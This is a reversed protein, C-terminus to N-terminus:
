NLLCDAAKGPSSADCATGRCKRRYEAITDSERDTDREMRPFRRATPEIPRSSPPCSSNLVCGAPSFTSIERANWFGTSRNAPLNARPKTGQSRLEDQSCCWYRNKGAKRQRTITTTKQRRKSNKARARCMSNETSMTAIATPPCRREGGCATTTARRRHRRVNWDNWCRWRSDCVCHLCCTRCARGMWKTTTWRCGRLRDDAIAGLDCFPAM